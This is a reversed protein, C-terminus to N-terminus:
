IQFATQYSPDTSSTFLFPHCQLPAVRRKQTEQAEKHSSRRRRVYEEMVAVIVGTKSRQGSLRQVESILEDPINLTARM